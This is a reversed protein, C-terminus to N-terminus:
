YQYQFTHNEKDTFNLWEIDEITQQTIAAKAKRSNQRGYYLRLIVAVMIAASQTSLVTIKSPIYRPADKAQFTQLGIISGVCISATILANAVARKTHGAVNATVWSFILVTSPAITNVLYMGALHGEKNTEPLFSMLAGGLVAPVCLISIWLWRNAQRGVSYGTILTSVIIIVGGPMNLLASQAPTYGFNRILTASFAAIVATCTSILIMLTALLWIQVDLALEKIHAWKFHKNQIGTQNVSVRQIAVAKEAESLWNASMPDDPMVIITLLGIVATLIGLMLFMMRWGALYEGTVQQFSWSVLGGMIQGLGTGCFWLTFRRVGEPKTYWIGTILMLCPPMSAEFVGLLIRCALLGHYNTVAATSATIVGWLIVNIGLFKALPVNQLIYGIPVEIILAAIYTASAANSFNNGTLKLDKNMGMVAAYSINVKDIVAVAYCAFALPIIRWDIKRVLTREDASKEELLQFHTHLYIAAEDLSTSSTNASLEFKESNSM